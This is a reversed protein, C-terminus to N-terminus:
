FGVKKIVDNRIEETQAFRKTGCYQIWIKASVKNQKYHNKCSLM